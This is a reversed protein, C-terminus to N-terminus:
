PCATIVARKKHGRLLVGLHHYPVLLLNLQAHQQAVRILDQGAAGDGQVILVHHHAAQVARQVGPVHARPNLVSLKEPAVLARHSGGHAEGHGVARVDDDAAAPLVAPDCHPVYFTPLLQVRNFHLLQLVGFYKAIVDALLLDLNKHPAFVAHREGVQHKDVGQAAVPGAHVAMAARYHMRGEHLLRRADDRSATIAFGNNPVSFGQLRAHRELAM